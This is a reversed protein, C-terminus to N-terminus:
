TGATCPPAAFVRVSAASTGEEPLVGKTTRRGWLLKRVLAEVGWETCPWVGLRLQSTIQHSSCVGSKLPSLDELTAMHLPKNSLVHTHGNTTGNHAKVQEDDMGVFTLNTRLSLELQKRIDATDSRYDPQPSPNTRLVLTLFGSVASMGLVCQRFVFKVKVPIAYALHINGSTSGRREVIYVVM